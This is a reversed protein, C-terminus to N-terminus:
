AANLLRGFFTRYRQLAVRLDETSVNDGRDWQRELSAPAPKGGIDREPIVFIRVAYAGEAGAIVHHNTIVRGNAVAFGSGFSVDRIQNNEDLSVAVIRVVSRETEALSPVKPAEGSAALVPGGALILLASAFAARWITLMWQM